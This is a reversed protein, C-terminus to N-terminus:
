IIDYKARKIKPYHSVQRFCNECLLYFVIKDNKGRIKKFYEFIKKKEKHDIYVEFISKQVRFGFAKLYKAMKNRIKNDEIDYGIAYFHKKM